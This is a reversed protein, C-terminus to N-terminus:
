GPPPDRAPAGPLARSIRREALFVAVSLIVGIIAGISVSVSVSVGILVPHRLFEFQVV